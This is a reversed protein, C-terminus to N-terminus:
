PKMIKSAPISTHSEGSNASGWVRECRKDFAVRAAPLRSILNEPLMAYVQVLVEPAIGHMSWSFGEAYMAAEEDNAPAPFEKADRLFGVVKAEEAELHKDLLATLETVVGVAAAKTGPLGAFASDGRELLPDIRRHDESLQDIVSVLSAHEEKLGPFIHTDEITHHGHLAGRYSQWEEQLAAIMDTDGDDLKGLALAFRAIDRRFAHHSMMLLTAM